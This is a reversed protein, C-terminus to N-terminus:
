GGGGGRFPYTMVLMWMIILEVVTFTALSTWALWSSPFTFFNWVGALLAKYFTPTKRSQKPMMRKEEEAKRKEEAEKKARRDYYETVTIPQNAEPDMDPNAISPVDSTPPPVVPDGINYPKKETAWEDEEEVPAASTASQVSPAPMPAPAAEEQFTPLNPEDQIKYPNPDFEWEDDIPPKGAAISEKTAPVAATVATSSASAKQAGKVPPEGERIADAPGDAEAADQPPPDGWPDQVFDASRKSKPARPKNQHRPLYNLSLWAFRGWHRAYLLIATPVMVIAAILWGVSDTMGRQVLWFATAFLVFTIIHVYLFAGIHGFMRKLVEFHIFHLWNQSYMMSALTLPYLFWLITFLTIAYATPSLILLPTLLASIPVIWVIMAWICLIPKWWWDTLGEKPYQVEDLGSSSDTLTTLFYHCAYLSYIGSWIAFVVLTCVFVIAILGGGM